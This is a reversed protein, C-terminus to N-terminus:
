ERKVRKAETEPGYRKDEQGRKSKLKQEIKQQRQLALRPLALRIERRYEELSFKVPDTPKFRGPIREEEGYLDLMTLNFHQHEDDAPIISIKSEQYPAQETANYRWIELFVSIAGVQVNGDRWFPGYAPEDSATTAIVLEEADTSPESKAVPPQTFPKSSYVPDEAFSFILVARTKGNSGELWKTMDLLLSEYKQSFGVEIAVLPFGDNLADDEAGGRAIVPVIMGDATKRSGKYSGSFGGTDGTSVFAFSREPRTIAYNEIIDQYSTLFFREVADHAPTTTCKIILKSTRSDYTYSPIM